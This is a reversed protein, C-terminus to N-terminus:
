LAFIVAYYIMGDRFLIALLKARTKRGEHITRILILIFMVGDYFMLSVFGLKMLLGLKEPFFEVDSIISLLIYSVLVSINYIAAGVGLVVAAKWDRGWIALTRLSLTTQLPFSFIWLLWTRVYIMDSSFTFIGWNGLTYIENLLFFAVVPYRGAVYLVKGVSWKSFWIYELCEPFNLIADYSLIVTASLSFVRSTTPNPQPVFQDSM